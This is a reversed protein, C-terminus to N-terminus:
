LCVFLVSYQTADGSRFRGTKPKTYRSGAPCSRVREGLRGPCGRSHCSIGWSPRGFGRFLGVCTRGSLCGTCREAASGSGLTKAKWGGAGAPLATLSLQGAACGPQQAPSGPCGAAERRPISGTLRGGSPEAGGHTDPRGFAHTEGAKQKGTDCRLLFCGFRFTLTRAPRHTVAQRAGHLSSRPATGACQPTETVWLLHSPFPDVPVRGSLCGRVGLPCCPVAGWRGGRGQVRTSQRAVARCLSVLGSAPASSLRGLGTDAGAVPWTGRPAQKHQNNRKARRGKEKKGREKKKREKKRKKVFLCLRGAERVQEHETPASATLQLKKYTFMLVPLALFVDQCRFIM